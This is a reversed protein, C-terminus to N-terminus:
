KVYKKFWEKISKKPIEAGPNEEMVKRFASNKGQTFSVLEKTSYDKFVDYLNEMLQQKELSMCNGAKIQKDRLKIDEVGYDKYRQYLMYYSDRIIDNEIISELYENEQLKERLNENEIELQEIYKLLIKEDKEQQETNYLTAFYTNEHYKNINEKAKELDKKLYVLAQNEKFELTDKIKTSNEKKNKESLRKEANHVEGELNKAMNEIEIDGAIPVKEFWECYFSM